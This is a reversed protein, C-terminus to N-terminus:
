EEQRAQVHVHAQVHEGCATAEGSATTPKTNSSTYFRTAYPYCNCRKHEHWHTHRHCRTCYYKYCNCCAPCTYADRTPCTYPAPYPHRYEGVDRPCTCVGNGGAPCTCIRWHTTPSNTSDSVSISMFPLSLQEDDQVHADSADNATADVRSADVNAQAEEHVRAVARRVSDVFSVLAEASGTDAQARTRKVRAERRGHAMDVALQHARAYASRARTVPSPRGTRMSNLRTATM